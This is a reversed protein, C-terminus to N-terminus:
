SFVQIFKQIVKFLTTSYKNRKLLCFLLVLKFEPGGFWIESLSLLTWVVKKNTIGIWGKGHPSGFVGFATPSCSQRHFQCLETCQCTALVRLDCGPKMIHLYELHHITLIKHETQLDHHSRMTCSIFCNTRLYQKAM